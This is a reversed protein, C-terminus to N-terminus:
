PNMSQLLAATWSPALRLLLSATVTLTSAVLVVLTLRRSGPACQGARCRKRQRLWALWSAALGVTGLPVTLAEYRMTTRM